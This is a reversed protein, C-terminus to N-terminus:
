RGPAGLRAALAAAVRDWTHAARWVPDPPAVPEGAEIAKGLAAALADPTTAAAIRGYGSARILDEYAPNPYVVPFAGACIADLVVLGFSESASTFLFYDAADYLAHLVADAVNPALTVQRDLGHRTVLTRLAAIEEPGPASGALTLHASQGAARLRALAAVQDGFRKPPIFAGVSLLQIRGGRRAPRPEPVPRAAAWSGGSLRLLREPPLGAHDRLWRAEVESSSVVLAAQRYLAIARTNVHRPHELHILPWLVLPIRERAAITAAQHAEASHHAVCLIWDPRSAQTIEDLGALHARGVLEDDPPLWPPRPTSRLPLAIWAPGRGRAAALGPATGGGTAVQVDLGAVRALADAVQRVLTQTGGRTDPSSATVVLLRGARPPAVVAGDARRM